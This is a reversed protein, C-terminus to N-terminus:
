CSSGYCFIIWLLGKKHFWIFWTNVEAM